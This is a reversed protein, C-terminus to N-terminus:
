ASVRRIGDYRDARAILHRERPVDTLFCRDACRGNTHDNLRLLRVVDNFGSGGIDDQERALEQAIGIPGHGGCRLQILRNM